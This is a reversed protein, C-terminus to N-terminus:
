KRARIQALVADVAIGLYKADRDADAQMSAEATATTPKMYAPALINFLDIALEYDSDLRARLDQMVELGEKNLALRSDKLEDM